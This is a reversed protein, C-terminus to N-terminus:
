PLLRHYCGNRPLRPGLRGFTQRDIEGRGTIAAPSPHRRHGGSGQNAVSGVTRHSVKAWLFCRAEIMIPEVEMPDPRGYSKRVGGDSKLAIIARM